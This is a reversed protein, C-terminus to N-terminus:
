NLIIRITDMDLNRIYTYPILHLIYAAVINGKEVINGLRNTLQMYGWGINTKNVEVLFYM